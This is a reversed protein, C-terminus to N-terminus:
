DAQQRDPLASAEGATCESRPTVPLGNIDFLANRHRAKALDIGELAM